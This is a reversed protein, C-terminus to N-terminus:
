GRLAGEAVGGARRVLLPELGDLGQEILALAQDFMVRSQRYPDPVDFDGARGLRFVRGRASRELREVERVQWGEMVLVLPFDRVLQPTLQRARHGSLDLGRERLLEQATPDAEQGVLAALGASEVVLGPVREAFRHRCLAEAMPSRCVNGVCVMLIRDFM